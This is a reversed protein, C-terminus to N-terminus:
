WDIGFSLKVMRTPQIIEIGNRERFAPELVLANQATNWGGRNGEFQNWNRWNFANIVDARVKIGLDSGTDWRKELAFDFQKYGITGKPVYPDYFCYPNGPAPRDICNTASRATHTALTLKGSFTVAGPLDYIGSLVLRHEPVGTSQYYDDGVRAGDFYYTEGTSANTRNEEADSFTYAVNLAWGSDATYPKDLSLLLSNLNYEIGNDGLILSGFGPIAQGWPQGGWTADPVGTVRHFSGDDWRNGLRFYIGDRSRIHVLTASSSWDHGFASWLNRIGLSYQDSYPTKLDNSLVNVEGGARPNAAVYADIGAQEDTGPRVPHLDHQAHM